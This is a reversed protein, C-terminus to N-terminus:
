RDLRLLTKIAEILQTKNAVSVERGQLSLGKLTRAFRRLETVTMAELQALSGISEVPSSDKTAQQRPAGKPEARLAPRDDDPHYKSLYRRPLVIAELGPGPRAIIDVAILEGVAEVATVAAKVAAQVAGLEGEIKVTMFAAETLEASSVVIASAKAAADTAVIAGVLGKTEILGLASELM